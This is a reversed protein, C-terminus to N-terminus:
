DLLPSLLLFSMLYFVIAMHNNNVVIRNVWSRHEVNCFRFDQLPEELHTVNGRMISM